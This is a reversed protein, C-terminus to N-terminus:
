LNQILKKFGSVKNELYGIRDEFRSCRDEFQSIKDEIICFRDKLSIAAKNLLQESIYRKTIASQM